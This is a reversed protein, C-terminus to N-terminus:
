SANVVAKAAKLRSCTCPLFFSALFDNESTKEWTERGWIVKTLIRKIGHHGSVHSLLELTNVVHHILDGKHGSGCRCGDWLSFIRGRNM